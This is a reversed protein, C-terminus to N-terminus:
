ALSGMHNVSSIYPAQLQSQESIYVQADAFLM